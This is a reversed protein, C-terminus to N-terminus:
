LRPGEVNGRIFTVYRIDSLTSPLRAYVTKLTTNPDSVVGEVVALAYTSDYAPALVDGREVLVPQPVEFVFAGGGLGRLVVIGSPEGARADTSAGGSSYLTLLATREGVEEVVGLLVREFSAFDGKRVGHGEKLAVLLTDYHTQPPRAIVRGTAVREEEPLELLESLRKHEEALAGFLLSQYRTRALEQERDSLRSALVSRPVGAYEDPTTATLAAPIASLFSFLPGRLIVAGAILLAAVAVGLTTLVRAPFKLSPSTM